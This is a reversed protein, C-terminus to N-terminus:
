LSCVVYFRRPFVQRKHDGGSMLKHGTQYVTLVYDKKKLQEKIEGTRKKWKKYRKEFEKNVKKKM